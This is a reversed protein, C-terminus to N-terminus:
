AKTPRVATGKGGWDNWPMCYLAMMQTGGLPAFNGAGDTPTSIFPCRPFFANCQIGQPLGVASYFESEGSRLADCHPYKDLMATGGTTGTKSAACENGFAKVSWSVDSIRYLQNAAQSATAICFGCLALAFGLLRCSASM